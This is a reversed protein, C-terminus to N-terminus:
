REPSDLGFKIMNLSEVDSLEKATRRYFCRKLHYIKVDLGLASDNLWEQFGDEKRYRKEYFTKLSGLLDSYFIHEERMPFPTYPFTIKVYYRYPTRGNIFEFDLKFDTREKITSFLRKVALKKHKPIKARIGAVEILQDLALTTSTTKKSWLIHRLRFLYIMFSKREDGNRGKGVRRYAQLDLTYYRKVFGNLLEPSIYVQYIKAKKNQPDYTIRLDSLIRISELQIEKNGELTTYAKQFILNKRMMELLAFDFVTQFRYGALVTEKGEQFRESVYSLSARTRGTARCFDSLRFTAYGFLDIQIQHLIFVIFDQVIGANEKFNLSIDPINDAIARDIRSLKTNNQM